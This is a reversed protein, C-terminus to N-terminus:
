GKRCLVNVYQDGDLPPLASLLEGEEGIASYTFGLASLLALFEAPGTGSSRLNVPSFEVILVLREHDRILQRAGHLARPEGGEIDMKILGIRPRGIANWFDDLAVLEVPQAAITHSQRFLSHDGGKSGSSVFLNGRGSGDSLAKEVITVNSCRAVNARLLGVNEHSPEFAYVRGEGGVDRAFRKTFYGIHAGVDLVTMGPRISKACAAVTGKEYLGLLMDLKWELKWGSKAPFHFDQARELLSTAIGLLPKGGVKWAARALGHVPGPLARRLYRARIEEVGPGIGKM